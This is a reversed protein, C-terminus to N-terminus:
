PQVFGITPNGLESVVLHDSLALPLLEDPADALRWGAETRRRGSVPPLQAREQHSGALTEEACMADRPIVEPRNRGALAGGDGSIL